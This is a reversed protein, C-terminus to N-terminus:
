AIYISSIVLVRERALRNVPHLFVDALSASLCQYVFSIGRLKGLQDSIDM